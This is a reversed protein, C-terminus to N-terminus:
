ADRPGVLLTMMSDTPDVDTSIVTHNTTEEDGRQVTLKDGAKPLVDLTGGGAREEALNVVLRFTENNLAGILRVQQDATLNSRMAEFTQSHTGGGDTYTHGVTVVSDPRASAAATLVRSLMTTTIPM